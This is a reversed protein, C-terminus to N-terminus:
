VLEFPKTRKLRRTRGTVDLLQIAEANVHHRLRNEHAEAYIKIVSTVTDVNLDRHLDSTRIYWPANVIGRLVKNQFCQIIKINSPKTCGWLQIGYTWVPKIVQKYLVIKNHVSLNSHKGLLWYMKKYRLDLEVRKKKVHAKWRLKADLTMGLYKATNEYPIVQDNIYVPHYDPRKNTFDVHVSKAENLKIRWKKTWNYITNVAKQVNNVAQKHNTGTAMIATDDAFTAITNNGIDPIDSTYLLYLVPGLVSGQPVGAKILKLDSFSDDQRVRFTRDTIYSELIDAFQKPLMKRLKLILGYHWVKDFAQAVDLFVTTCVKQEELTKEMIDTIRHVQDITAHKERFGFQYKPILHNKEIIPKLQRLLLKEFLKSMIPLLSIPRYSTAENPPKGPKPIMIVEAVKWVDPVHRLRFCANILTTLKVVAKHPLNQFHEGTILDYGPSKKKNLLKIEKYVM